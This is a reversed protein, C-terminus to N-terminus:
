IFEGERSRVHRACDVPKGGREGGAYDPLFSSNAYVPDHEKFHSM